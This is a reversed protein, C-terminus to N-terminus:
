IEFGLIIYFIDQKGEKTGWSSSMSGRYDHSM